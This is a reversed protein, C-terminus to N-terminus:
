VWTLLQHCRTTHWINNDFCLKGKRFGGKKIYHM